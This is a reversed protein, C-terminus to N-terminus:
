HKYFISYVDIYLILLSSNFVNETSVAMFSVDHDESRSDGAQTSWLRKPGGRVHARYSQIIYAFYMNGDMCYLQSRVLRTGTHPWRMSM